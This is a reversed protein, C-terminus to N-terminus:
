ITGGNAVIASKILRIQGLTYQALQKHNMLSEVTGDFWSNTYGITLIMDMESATPEYGAGFTDTINIVVLSDYALDLANVNNYGVLSVMVDTDIATRVVSLKGIEGASAGTKLVTDGTLGTQGTPGTAGILDVYTYTADGVKRVGLETGDWLYELDKGDVGDQGYGLSTWATSGDGAKWKGTDIELGMEGVLLIPNAATWEAATGRRLQVKAVM